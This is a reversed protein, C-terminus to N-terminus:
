FAERTAFRAKLKQSPKPAGPGSWKSLLPGQEREERDDQHGFGGEFVLQDLLV